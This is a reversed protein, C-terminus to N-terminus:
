QRSSGPGAGDSLGRGCCAHALRAANGQPVLDFWCSAGRQRCHHRDSADASARRCIRNSPRTRSSFRAREIALWRVLILLKQLFFSVAFSSILLTTPDARRLPRFAARETVLALMVAVALAGFLMVPVPLGFLALLTYAAMTILEGHAFNILRMVGFILGIGLATLAYLSGVSLADVVTQVLREM